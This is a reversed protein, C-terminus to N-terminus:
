DKSLKVVGRQAMVLKYYRGQKRMLEDHTGVEEIKGKELVILKTANRLTSLRHAIALTTREKTLQAISDQILKETETDLSATAEDLILIRPNRLVARAIQVRQREGGSLTHGREGVITNYADPSRMIFDHANAAKAARIIEDHDLDVEGYSINAGITGKFLFSEQLVVGVQSRLSRQTLKDIPKGDIKLTGEDLDYLRMVLNILTSKGVGSRGVIGIMEGKKIELNIGKLVYENSNYGFYANEFSIDGQIECDEAEEVDAVSPAEDIIEFVKSMSTMAETLRRPVFAMWRLPGYIIGVYALLQSLEGITTVGDIVQFGAFILVAYEGIGVLFNALPMILNWTRENRFSIDASKKIAYDFRKAEAAEMGFVKVVRIGSFADHLITNVNSNAHWQRRYMRRIRSRVAFFMLSILPMPIVILFALKWNMVFLMPIIALFLTGQQFLEPTLGTIFDKLVQTDSTVRTILEGATRRSIDGMSMMPIKGFVAKRLSVIIKNGTKAIVVSRIIRVILSVAAVGLMAAVTLYFGTFDPNGLIAPAANIYDDILHAQLMPSVLSLGSTVFYLLVALVLAPAHPKAFSMLRGVLKKKDACKTCIKSGERFPTGCHPCLVNQEEEDSEFVRGENFARVRKVFRHINEANLMDSRCFEKVEGGDNYEVAVCGVYSIAEIEEFRSVALSQVEGDGESFYVTDGSLAVAGYTRQNDFSLNYEFISAIGGGGAAEKVRSKVALQEPAVFQFDKHKM